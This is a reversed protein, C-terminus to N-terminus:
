EGYYSQLPLQQPHHNSQFGARPIGTVGSPGPTVQETPSITDYTSSKENRSGAGQEMGSIDVLDALTTPKIFPMLPYSLPYMDFHRGYVVIRM